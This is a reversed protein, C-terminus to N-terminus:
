QPLVRYHGSDRRLRHSDFRPRPRSGLGHQRHPRRKTAALQPGDESKFVGGTVTGAYLSAPTSADTQLAIVFLDQLGRSTWSTGGDTSAFVGRRTGVFLAAPSAAFCEGGLGRLGKSAVNWSKAGDTSRFVGTPGAAYITAPRLPDITLAFVFAAPLGGNVRRWAAIASAGRAFVGWQTAAYLRSSLPDAALSGAQLDPDGARRWSAGRDDSMFIGQEGGSAAYIITDSATLAGVSSLALGDSTAKWSQGGDESRFVGHGPAGAAYLAASGDRGQVLANVREELALKVWHAGHDESALVGIPDGADSAAYFTVPPSRDVLLGRVDVRSVVKQWTSGGDGSRFIGGSPQFQGDVNEFLGSTGALVVAPNDPDVALTAVPLQELGRNAVRWSGGGNTSHFLGHPAASSLWLSSSRSPDVFLRTAFDVGDPLRREGWREGGNDSKFIRGNVVAYLRGPVTPDVVVQGIAPFAPGGSTWGAPRAPLPQAAPLAALAGFAIAGLARISM